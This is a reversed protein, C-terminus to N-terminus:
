QRRVWWMLAGLAGLLCPLGAFSFWFVGSMQTATMQLKISELPKPGIGILREQEVLWHLAGLALDANGINSLQGNSVFDSDGLVVVRTIQPTKREAAIAITVPGKADKGEDFKFPSTNLDTEGWGQPSTMALKHVQVGEPLTATPQVSRALPFLTMFTAMHEVIPHKTYTTIFLNAPSVFPLQRTPDVVIDNNVAIGWPALLGELGSNQLPDILLLLRGGRDLYARLLGVEAEAFPRNPGPIFVANVDKPIDTHELVTATELRINDQETRRALNTLGSPQGDTIAKEGHGATVWVLPQTHETVSIIASTLAEEGKFAKVTPQGGGMSMANYDYEAMDTDSLYKHRDGSEVVVVNARTIEFQKVLQEARAPDQDPDVYEVRLQPSFREYETLMDRVLEYLRQSPQYFVILRLPEQLRKLTTTTKESLATIKTKTLDLRVYRRSAIFNVFLFLAGLLLMTVALNLGSIWWRIHRVKMSESM